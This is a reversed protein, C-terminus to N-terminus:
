QGRRPVHRRLFGGVASVALPLWRGPMVPRGERRIQVVRGLLEADDFWGDPRPMADGKVLVRHGQRRVVRHVVGFDDTPALVVAGVEVGAADPRITVVDGDLVFPRMSGGRATFCVQEGRGLLELALEAGVTM